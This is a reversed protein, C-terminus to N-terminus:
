RAVGSAPSRKAVLERAPGPSHGGGVVHTLPLRVGARRRLAPQGSLVRSEVLRWSLTAALVACGFTAVAIQDTSAAPYWHRLLNYIPLHLLYLGYSIRGLYRLPRCGIIRALLSSPLSLLNVILLVGIMCADMYDTRTQLRRTNPTVHAVVRYFLYILVLCLLLRAPRALRSAVHGALDSLGGMLAVPSPVLRYRWVVAALCGILLEAARDAPSYYVASATAQSTVDASVYVLALITVGLIAAVARPGLRRRLMFALLLPWMLYFQEEQALSWTPNLGGLAKSHGLAAVWNNVFLFTTLSKDPLPWGTLRYALADTLVALLVVIVLAPLLRRTRREYFRRFSITGSREWEEYLLTTILFGSLAFFLDVGIFGGPLVRTHMLIVLTVAIGRLGDLVPRRGLRRAKLDGTPIAEM